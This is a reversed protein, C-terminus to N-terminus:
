LHCFYNKWKNLISHFDVLLDGSENNVLNTKPQYGKKFENIGRHLDRVNRNKRDTESENFEEKLYEKTKNSFTRSTECRVNNLNDRNSESEAVV